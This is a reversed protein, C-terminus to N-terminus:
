ISQNPLSPKNPLKVSVADAIRHLLSMGYPNARAPYIDDYILLGFDSTM